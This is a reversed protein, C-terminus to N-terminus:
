GELEAKEQLLRSKREEMRALQENIRSLKDESTLQAVPEPMPNFGNMLTMLEERGYEEFMQQRAEQIDQEPFLERIARPIRIKDAEMKAKVEGLQENSLAM